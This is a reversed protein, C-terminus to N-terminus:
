DGYLNRASEVVELLTDESVETAFVSAWMGDRNVSNLRIDWIGVDKFDKNRSSITAFKFRTKDCLGVRRVYVKDEIAIHGLVDPKENDVGKDKIISLLAELEMEKNNNDM